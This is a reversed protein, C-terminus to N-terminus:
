ADRVGYAHPGRQRSRHLGLRLAPHVAAPLPQDAALGCVARLQSDAFPGFSREETHWVECYVDVNDPDGIQRTVTVNTSDAAIDFFGQEPAVLDPTQGTGNINLSHPLAAPVGVTLGTFRVISKLQTAM